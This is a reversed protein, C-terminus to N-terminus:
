PLPHSLVARGTGWLRGKNSAGGHDNAVDQGILLGGEHLRVLLAPTQGVGLDATVVGQVHPDGPPCGLYRPQSSDGLFSHISKSASPGNPRLRSPNLIGGWGM